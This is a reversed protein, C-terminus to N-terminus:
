PLLPPWRPFCCPCTSGVCGRAGHPPLPFSCHIGDWGAFTGLPIQADWGPSPPGTAKHPAASPAWWRALPDASPLSCLALYSLIRGWPSACALPAGDEGPEEGWAPAAVWESGRGM